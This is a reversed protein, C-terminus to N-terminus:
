PYPFHQPVLGRYANLSKHKADDYDPPYYKNFGPYTHILLFLLGIGRALSVKCATLPPKPLTNPTHEQSRQPLRPM